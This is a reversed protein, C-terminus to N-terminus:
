NIRVIRVKGQKSAIPFMLPLKLFLKDFTVYNIIITEVSNFMPCDSWLCGVGLVMIQVSSLSDSDCWLM